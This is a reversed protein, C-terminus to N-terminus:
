AVDGDVVNTKRKFSASELSFGVVARMVIEDPRWDVNHKLENTRRVASFSKVFVVSRYRCPAALFAQNVESTRFGTHVLGISYM